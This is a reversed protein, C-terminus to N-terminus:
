FVPTPVTGWGTDPPLDKIDVVNLGHIDVDLMFLPSRRANISLMDYPEDIRVGDIRLFVLRQEMGSAAHNAMSAHMAHRGQTLHRFPHFIWDSIMSITHRQKYLRWEGGTDAILGQMIYNAPLFYVLYNGGDSIRAKVEPMNLIDPMRHEIKVMDQPNITIVAVGPYSVIPLHRITYHRMYFAGGIALLAFLVFTAAKGAKGSPVILDEVPKPLFMGTNKMYEAYTEPHSNLMRREEDKSLLYYVVAMLVWLVVVLFRPWLISLGISAAALAAYQPHRIFSYLGKLAAGKKLFKNAYVQVACAFFVLMGCVFLVSGCVRIFKLFGDPPVIMHPLFFASMWKTSPHDALTLLVPNFASYFFGAFPSIMIVIELGIIFYLVIASTGLLKNKNM